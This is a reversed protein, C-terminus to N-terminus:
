LSKAYLNSSYDGLGSSYQNFTNGYDGYNSGGGTKAQPQYMGLISGLGAGMQGSQQSAYDRSAIDASYQGAAQSAPTGYVGGMGGMFSSMNSLRGQEANGKMMANQYDVDAMYRSMATAQQEGVKPLYQEKYIGSDLMNNTNYGYTGGMMYDAYQKEIDAMALDIASQPIQGYQAPASVEGWTQQYADQMWQPIQPQEYEVEDKGFLGGLMSGGGAVAGAILMATGPDITLMCRKIMEIPNFFGFLSLLRM